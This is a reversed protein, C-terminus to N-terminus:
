FCKSSYMFASTFFSNFSKLHAISCASSPSTPPRVPVYYFPSRSEITYILITFLQFRLSCFHCFVNRKGGERRESRWPKINTLRPARYPSFCFPFLLLSCLVEVWNHCDSTIRLGSARGRIFRVGFKSDIFFDKGHRKRKKKEVKITARPIM